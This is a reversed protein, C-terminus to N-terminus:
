VSHILAKAVTVSLYLGFWVQPRSWAPPCSAPSQTPCSTPTRRHHWARPERRLGAPDPASVGPLFLSSTPHSILLLPRTPLAPRTSQPPPPPPPTNVNPASWFAIGNWLALMYQLYIEKWPCNSEVAWCLLSGYSILNCPSNMEKISSWGSKSAYNM